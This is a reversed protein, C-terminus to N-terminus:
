RVYIKAAQLFHRRAEFTLSMECYKNPNNAWFLDPINIRLHYNRSKNNWINIAFQRYTAPLLYESGLSSLSVILSRWSFVLSRM